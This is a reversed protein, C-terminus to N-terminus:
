GSPSDTDDRGLVGVSVWAIAVVIAGIAAYTTRNDDGIVAFLGGYIITLVLAIYSLKKREM